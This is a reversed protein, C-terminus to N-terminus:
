MNRIRQDSGPGAPDGVAHGAGARGGEVAGPIAPRGEGVPHRHARAHRRERHAGARGAPRSRHRLRGRAAVSPAPFGRLENALALLRRIQPNDPDFGAEVLYEPLIEGRRWGSVAAVLSEIQELGLGLAKGTDRLASKSRYTIVTAALAARERGYKRYIYQIVEERREHEFDVDIDPPEQRERSIFREFLLNMRAPDVETIGLCYCVASNAASGRGQCLIGQGRAYRVMDWVTLFYAEYELEAILALEHEVQARVRAPCGQPWRRAMGQETLERLFARPTTGAPTVDDPYQYRIEDLSFRCREAIRGTEALLEPPYLDALDDPTRLHREGNSMRAHGLEAVPTNLRIATVLDQLARRGRVHMHVDSAAVRPLGFRASWEGSRALRLADRGDRLLEVALWGRDPFTEAFWALHEEPEELDPLMLALCGPLGDALQERSLRYEGKAAQRRAETILRCLRGYGTRDCALVVLRPGDQLRLESGVILALGLESTKEHARVVGSVSCEDTIALAAYGLAHARAALEEPHSAGRLFTFNSICHLEAYTM